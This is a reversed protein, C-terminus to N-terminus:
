NIVLDKNSYLGVDLFCFLVYFLWKDSPLLVVCQEHRWRQNDGPRLSCRQLNLCFLTWCLNVRQRDTSSQRVRHLVRDSLATIGMWCLCVCVCLGCMQWVFRWPFAPLVYLLYSWALCGGLRYSRCACGVNGIVLVCVYICISCTTLGEHNFVFCATHSAAVDTPAAQWNSGGRKLCLSKTLNFALTTESVCCSGESCGVTWLM